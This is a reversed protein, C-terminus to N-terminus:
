RIECCATNRGAWCFCASFSGNEAHSSSAFDSVTRSRQSPAVGCDFLDDGWTRGLAQFLRERLKAIWALAPRLQPSGNDGAGVFVRQKAATDVGAVRLSPEQARSHITRLRIRGDRRALPWCWRLRRRWRVRIGCWRGGNWVKALLHGEVRGNRREGQEIAAGKEIGQMLPDTLRLM